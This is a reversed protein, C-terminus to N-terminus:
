LLHSFTQIHSYNYFQTEFKSIFYPIQAGFQKLPEVLRPSLEKQYLCTLRFFIVKPSSEQEYLFAPSWFVLVALKITLFSLFVAFLTRVLLDPTLGM